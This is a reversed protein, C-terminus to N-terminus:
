HRRYAPRSYKYERYAQAKAGNYDGCGYNERKTQANIEDTRRMISAYTAKDYFPYRTQTM